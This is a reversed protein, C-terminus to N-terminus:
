NNTDKNNVKALSQENNKISHISRTQLYFYFFIFLNM